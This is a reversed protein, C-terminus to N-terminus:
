NWPAAISARVRTSLQVALVRVIARAIPTRAGARDIDALARDANKVGRRAAREVAARAPAALGEDWLIPAFEVTAGRIKPEDGNDIAMSVFSLCPYCIPIRGLDLDLQAALERARKADLPASV